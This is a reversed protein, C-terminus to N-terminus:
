KSFLPRLWESVQSYYGDAMGTTVAYINLFMLAASLSLAFLMHKEYVNM